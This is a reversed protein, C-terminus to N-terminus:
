GADGLVIVKLLVRPRLGWCRVASDLFPPPPVSITRSEDSGSGQNEEAGMGSDGHDLDGEKANVCRADHHRHQVGAASGGQRQAAAPGGGEAAAGNSSSRVGRRHRRRRRQRIRSVVDDNEWFGAMDQMLSTGQWASYKRNRKWVVHCQRAARSSVNEAVYKRLETELREEFGTFCTSGGAIVINAYLEPRDTQDCVSIAEAICQHIGRGASINTFLTEQLCRLLCCVTLDPCPVGSVLRM